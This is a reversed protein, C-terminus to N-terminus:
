VSTTPCGSAGPGGTPLRTTRRRSPPSSAAAACCRGTADHGTRGRRNERVWSGLPLPHRQPHRERCWRGSLDLLETAQAPIPLACSLENVTYPEEGEGGVDVGVV